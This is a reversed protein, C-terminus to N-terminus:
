MLVSGSGWTHKIRLLRASIPEWIDISIKVLLPTNDLHLLCITWFSHFPFCKVGHRLNLFPIIRCQIIYCRFLPDPAIPYHAAFSVAIHCRLLHLWVAACDVVALCVSFHCSFLPRVWRWWPCLRLRRRPICVVWLSDSKTKWSGYNKLIKKIGTNNVWRSNKSSFM